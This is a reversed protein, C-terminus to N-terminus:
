ENKRLNKSRKESNNVVSSAQKLLFNTQTNSYESMEKKIEDLMSAPQLSESPAIGSKSKHSLNKNPEIESTISKNSHEYYNYPKFLKSNENEYETTM